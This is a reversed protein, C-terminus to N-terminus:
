HEDSEVAAEAEVEAELRKRQTAVLTLMELTLGDPLAKNAADGTREVSKLDPLMKKLMVTLARLRVDDDESGCLEWLKTLAEQTNADLWQRVHADFRPKGSRNIRPDGKAFSTSNLAM